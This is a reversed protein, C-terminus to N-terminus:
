CDSIYLGRSTLSHAPGLKTEALLKCDGYFTQVTCIKHQIRKMDVCIRPIEKMTTTHSLDPSHCLSHQLRWTQKETM